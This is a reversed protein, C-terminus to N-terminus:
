LPLQIIDSKLKFWGLDRMECEASNLTRVTAWSARVDAGGGDGGRGVENRGARGGGGRGRGGREARAM